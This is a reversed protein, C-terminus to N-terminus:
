KKLGLEGLRENLFDGVTKDEYRKPNEKSVCIDLCNLSIEPKAHLFFPISFRSEKLKEKDVPNVVRHITSKLKGNTYHEMMDGINVIICDEVKTVPIWEGDKRQVELGEASAGMLLTIFNIDGHAGARVAGDEIKSVDDIPFYHLLRMISNGDGCLPVFHDKGLGLHLAIAQLIQMGTTHLINFAELTAEEFNPLESPFINEGYTPNGLQFFEKLDPKDMGKATEKGKGIYGRQGDLEPKEYQQKLSDESYFFEKSSTYLKEQLKEDLKHNKIAVFGITEYANGLAKIFEERELPDNSRFDNLDLQPINDFMGKENQNEVNGKIM